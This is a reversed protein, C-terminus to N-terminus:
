LPATRLELQQGHGVRELETNWWPLYSSQNGLHTEPCIQEATLILSTPTLCLHTLMKLQKSRKPVWRHTPSVLVDPTHHSHSCFWDPEGLLELQRLRARSTDRYLAAVPDTHGQAPLRNPDGPVLHASSPPLLSATGHPQSHDTLSAALRPSQESGEAQALCLVQSPISLSLLQSLRHM